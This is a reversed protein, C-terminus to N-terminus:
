GLAVSRSNLRLERGGMAEAFDVDDALLGWVVDVFNPTPTSRITRRTKSLIEASTTELRREFKKRGSQARTRCSTSEERALGAM